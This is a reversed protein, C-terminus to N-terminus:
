LVNLREGRTWASSGKGSVQASRFADFEERSTVKRRLFWWIYPFHYSSGRKVDRNEPGNEREDAHPDKWERREGGRITRKRHQNGGKVPAPRLQEVV